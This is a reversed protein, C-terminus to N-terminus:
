LLLVFPCIQNTRQLQSVITCDISAAFRVIAADAKSIEGVRVLMNALLRVGVIKLMVEFIHQATM